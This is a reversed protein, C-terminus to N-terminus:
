REEPLVGLEAVREAAQKRNAGPAAIVDDPAAVAVVNDVASAAVICNVAFFAVVVYNVAIAVVRQVGASAVVNYVTAHAVTHHDATVADVTYAVSGPAVCVPDAGSPAVIDDVDPVFVTLVYDVTARSTIVSDASRPSLTLM